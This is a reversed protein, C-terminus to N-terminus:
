QDLGTGFPVEALSMRALVTVKSKAVVCGNTRGPSAGVTQIFEQQDFPKSLDRGGRSLRCRSSVPRSHERFGRHDQPGPTPPATISNTELGKQEPMALDTIVVDVKSAAAIEVSHKGNSAELVFYSAATLL